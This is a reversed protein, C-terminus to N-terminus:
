CSLVLVVDHQGKAWGGVKKKRGNKSDNENYHRHSGKDDEVNDIPHVLCDHGGQLWRGGEELCGLFLPRVHFSRKRKTRM